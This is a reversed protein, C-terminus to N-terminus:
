RATFVVSSLITALDEKMPVTPDDNQPHDASRTHWGVSVVFVNGQWSYLHAQYNFEQYSNTLSMETKGHVIRIEEFSTGGQTASIVKQARDNDKAALRDLHQFLHVEYRLPQDARQVLWSSDSATIDIGALPTPGETSDPRPMRWTIEADATSAHQVEWTSSPPRTTTTQRVTSLTPFQVTPAANNGHFSWAGLGFLLAGVVLAAIVTLPRISRANSILLDPPLDGVPPGPPPPPAAFTGGPPPPAPAFPAPNGKEIGPWAAPDRPASEPEGSDEFWTM